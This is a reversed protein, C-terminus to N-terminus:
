RVANKQYVDYADQYIKVAEPVGMSNLAKVFEDFDDLSVEGTIFKADMQEIYSERDAQYKMIEDTQTKSFYVSPYVWQHYKELGNSMNRSLSEENPEEFLNHWFSNINFPMRYHGIKQINYTWFSDVNSPWQYRFQGNDMVYYTGKGDFVPRDTIGLVALTGEYSYCWDILKYANEPEKCKNTISAVGRGVADYKGTMQVNNFGSVMPPIIEYQEYDSVMLYHAAQNFFGYRMQQGKAIFSDLTQTFYERDLLGADWLRKMFRIYEKYEPQVPVFVITKGDKGITFRNEVYGLANLIPQSIDASKYVGGAPIINGSRTKFAALANFFEDLTKPVPLNLEKLWKTNLWLRGGVSMSRLYNENTPMAYINGDPTTIAAKVYPSDTFMKKTEPGVKEILANLPILQGSSGYTVEEDPTLPAGLFLDPLQNTAFLIGKREQWGSSDIEEVAIKVGTQEQIFSYIFKETFPGEGADRVTIVSLTGGGSAARGADRGGAAFLSAVTLICFVLLVTRRM